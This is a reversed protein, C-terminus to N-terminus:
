LTGGGSDRVFAKDDAQWGEFNAKFGEPSSEIQYFHVYDVRAIRKAVDHWRVNAAESPSSLYSIGVVAAVLLVAAATFQTIRSEMIIRRLSRRQVQEGSMQELAARVKAVRADMRQDLTEGLQLLVNRESTLTGGYDRCRACGSMHEEIAASAEPTLVGLVYDAIADRNRECPNTM